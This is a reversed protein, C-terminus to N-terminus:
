CGPLKPFGYDYCICYQCETKSERKLKNYACDKIRPYILSRERSCSIVAIKVNTWCAECRDDDGYDEFYDEYDLGDAETQCSAISIAYM